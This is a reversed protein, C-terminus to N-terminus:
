SIRRTSPRSVRHRGLLERGDGGVRGRCGGPEGAAEAVRREGLHEDVEPHGRQRVGVESLLVQRPRLGEVRQAGVHAAAAEQHLKGLCRARFLDEAVVGIERRIRVGPQAVGLGVDFVHGLAEVEALAVLHDLDGAVVAVQQLVELAAAHRHEADLRRAVDGRRRLLPADRRQCRKKPRSVARSSAASPLRASRSTALLTSAWVGDSLSKTAPM